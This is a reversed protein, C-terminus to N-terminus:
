DRQKGKRQAQKNLIYARQSLSKRTKKVHHSVFMMHTYLVQCLPAEIEM